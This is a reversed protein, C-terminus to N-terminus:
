GPERRAPISVNPTKLRGIFGGPKPRTDGTVNGFKRLEELTSGVEVCHALVKKLAQEVPM